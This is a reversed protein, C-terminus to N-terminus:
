SKNLINGFLINHMFKQLLLVTGVTWLEGGCQNRANSIVDAYSSINLTFLLFPFLLKKM